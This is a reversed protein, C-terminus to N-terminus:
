QDGQANLFRTVRHEVRQPVRAQAQAHENAAALDLTRDDLVPGQTVKPRTPIRPARAGHERLHARAARAQTWAAVEDPSPGTTRLRTAGTDPNQPPLDRPDAVARPAAPMVRPPRQAPTWAPPPLDAPDGTAFAFQEPTLADGALDEAVDLLEGVTPGDDALADPHADDLEAAPPLGPHEAPPEPEVPAFPLDPVPEDDFRQPGPGPEPAPHLPREGSPAQSATLGDTAPAPGCPPHTTLGTRRSWELNV